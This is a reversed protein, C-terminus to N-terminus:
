VFREGIEVGVGNLAISVHHRGARRVRPVRAANVYAVGEVWKLWPREEGQRTHLHMHGAVVAEVTKGMKHAYNIAVRLDEDGWDGGVPEGFDRGWLDDPADGLGTPGNHALFILRDSQARDVCRKLRQASAALNQVGYVERLMRAFNIRKRFRRRGGTSGNEGPEHGQNLGSGMSCPRAVIVDFAVDGFRFFHSSYGGMEVPAIWRTLQKHFAAHRAGSLWMLRKSDLVEAALQVLNHVDHNGAIMLARKRLRAIRSAMSPTRKLSLISTLDGVFLLLDYNSRNFYANDKGNWQEHVDGIVAIRAM